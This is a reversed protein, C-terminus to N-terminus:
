MGDADRRLPDPRPCTAPTAPSTVTARPPSGKFLRADAAKFGTAENDSIAQMLAALVVPVRSSAVVKEGYASVLLLMEDKVFKSLEDPNAELVRVLHAHLQDHQLTGLVSREIPIASKKVKAAKMMESKLTARIAQGAKHQQLLECVHRELTRARSNLYRSLLALWVDRVLQADFVGSPLLAVFSEFLNESMAERRGLEMVQARYRDIGAPTLYKRLKLEVNKMLEGFQLRVRTLGGYLDRSAVYQVAPNDESYEQDDRLVLVELVPLWEKHSKHAARAVKQWARGSLYLVVGEEEQELSAAELAEPAALTGGNACCYLKVIADQLRSHTIGLKVETSVASRPLACFLEFSRKRFDDGLLAEFAYGSKEAAGASYATRLQVAWAGVFSSAAACLPEAVLPQLVAEYDSALAKLAPAVCLSFFGEATETTGALDSPPLLAAASDFERAAAASIREHQRTAAKAQAVAQKRATTEAASAAKEAEKRAASAAKEAEKRAASAAKEAEKLARNAAREAEKKEM